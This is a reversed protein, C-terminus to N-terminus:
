VAWALRRRKVIRRNLLLAMIKKRATVVQTAGPLAQKTM